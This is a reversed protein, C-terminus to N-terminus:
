NWLHNGLAAAGFRLETMGGAPVYVTWVTRSRDSAGSGPVFRIVEPANTLVTRDADVRYYGYPMASLDRVQVGNLFFRPTHSRGAVAVHLVFRQTGIIVPDTESAEPVVFTRDPGSGAQGRVRYLGPPLPISFSTEGAALHDHFLGAGAEVLPLDSDRGTSGPEGSLTLGPLDDPAVTDLSFAVPRAESWTARLLSEVDAVTRLEYSTVPARGPGGDQHMAWPVQVTAAGDGLLQRAREVNLRAEDLDGDLTAFAALHLHATAAVARIGGVDFGGPDSVAASAVVRDIEAVARRVDALAASLVVPDTSGDLLPLLDNVQEAYHAAPGGTEDSAPAAMTLGCLSLALAAWFVRVARREAWARRAPAACAVRRRLGTHM